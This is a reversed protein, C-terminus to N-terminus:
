LVFLDSLGWFYSEFHFFLVFVANGLKGTFVILMCEIDIINQGRSLLLIHLILDM